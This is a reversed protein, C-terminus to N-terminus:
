LSPSGTVRDQLSPHGTFHKHVQFAPPSRTDLRPSFGTPEQAEVGLSSLWSGRGLPGCDRDSWPHPSARGLSQRHRPGSKEQSGQRGAGGEQSQRRLSSSLPRAQEREGRRGHTGQALGPSGEWASPFTPAAESRERTGEGWLMQQGGQGGARERQLRPGQTDGHTGDSIASLGSGQPSTLVPCLGTALGLPAWM